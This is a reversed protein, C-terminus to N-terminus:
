NVAGSVRVDARGRGWEGMGGAGWGGGGGVWEMCVNVYARVVTYAVCWVCVCM